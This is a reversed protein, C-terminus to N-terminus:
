RQDPIPSRRGGPGAQVGYPHHRKALGEERTQCPRRFGYVKCQECRSAASTHIRAAPEDRYLHRRMPPALSGSFGSTSNPSLLSFFGHLLGLWLSGHRCGRRKCRGNERETALALQSRALGPRQPSAVDLPAPPVNELELLEPQLRGGEELRRYILAHTVRSTPKNVRFLTPSTKM